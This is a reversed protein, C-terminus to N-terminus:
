IMEICYPELVLVVDRAPGTIDLQGAGEGPFIRAGCSFPSPLPGKGRGAEIAVLCRAVAATMMKVLGDKLSGEPGGNLSRPDVFVRGTVAQSVAEGGVEELRSIVNAGDLLKEAMAVDRRCHNVGVHEVAAPAPNPAREVISGRSRIESALARKCIGTQTNLV